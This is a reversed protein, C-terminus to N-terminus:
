FGVGGDPVYMSEIVTGNGAIGINKEIGDSAVLDAADGVLRGDHYRAGLELACPDGNGKYMRSSGDAFKMTILYVYTGPAAPQGHVYGNWGFSPDGPAIGHGNFLVVGWRDYVAFDEVECSQPGISRM